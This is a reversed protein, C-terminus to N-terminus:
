SADSARRLTAPRGPPAQSSFAQFFAEQWREWGMNQIITGLREGKRNLNKYLELVTKLAKVVEMDSALPLITRALTPHRGLKGGVLVRYGKEGEGMAEVPCARICEGCLICERTIVAKGDKLSIAREQCAKACEGCGNCAKPDVRPKMVAIVGFDKIHVQSCANPCNAVAVRFMHSHLLPGKVREQLFSLLRAEELTKELEELLHQTNGLSNPCGGNGFCSDLSHGRNVRSMEKAVAQRTELVDKATVRNGGRAKVLAEIERKARSRVFFPVRKLLEQAERDWEM